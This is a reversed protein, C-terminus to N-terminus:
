SADWKAVSLLEGFHAASFVLNEFAFLSGFFPFKAFFGNNLCIRRGLLFPVIPSDDSKGTSVLFNWAPWNITLM